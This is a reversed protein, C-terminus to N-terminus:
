RALQKPRRASRICGFLSEFEAHEMKRGEVLVAVIRELSKSDITGAAKGVVSAARGRSCRCGGVDEFVQVDRRSARHASLGRAIPHAGRARGYRQAAVVRRCLLASAVSARYLTLGACSRPPPPPPDHRRSTLRTTMIDERVQAVDSLGRSSPYRAQRAAAAVVDQAVERLASVAASDVVAVDDDISATARRKRPGAKGAAKLGDVRGTQRQGGRGRGASGNTDANIAADAAEAAARSLFRFFSTRGAGEPGRDVRRRRREGQRTRSLRRAATQPSRPARSPARRVCSPLM